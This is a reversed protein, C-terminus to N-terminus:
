SDPHYRIEPGNDNSTGQISLNTLLTASSLALNMNNPLNNRIQFNSPMPNPQLITFNAPGNNQNNNNNNNNQSSRNQNNESNSGPAVFNVQIPQATPIFNGANVTIPFNSFNGQNNNSSLNVFNQPNRQYALLGQNALNLGKISYEVQNGSVPAYPSGVPNANAILGQVNQYSLNPCSASQPDAKIKELIKDVANFLQDPEGCITIVRELISPMNNGDPKQTMQVKALTTDMIHKITAGKKGIILGATSNPVIIKVQKAREANLQLMEKPVPFEVIKQIITKIVDYVNRGESKGQILAIRETTGPYFDKSKSLNIKIGTNKQLNTISQGQKGIISGVAYAPVLMKVMIIELPQDKKFGGVHNDYFNRPPTHRNIFNRNKSLIIETQGNQHNFLNPSRYNDYRNIDNGENSMKFIIPSKAIWLICYHIGFIGRCAPGKFILWIEM